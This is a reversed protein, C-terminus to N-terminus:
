SERKLFDGFHEAGMGSDQEHWVGFALFNFGLNILIIINQERIIIGQWAHHVFLQYADAHSNIPRESLGCLQNM